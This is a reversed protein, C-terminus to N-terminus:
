KGMFCFSIIDNAAVHISRPIIMIFSTLCLFAFVMHNDSLMYLTFFIICIFKCIFM